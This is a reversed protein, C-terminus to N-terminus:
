DAPVEEAKPKRGRKKKPEGEGEAGDEAKPKSPKPEWAEVTFEQGEVLGASVYYDVGGVNLYSYKGATDVVATVIEGNVVVNVETGKTIRKFPNLRLPKEGEAVPILKFKEM